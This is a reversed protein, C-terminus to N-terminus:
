QRGGNEEWSLGCPAQRSLLPPHGEHPYRPHPNRSDGRPAAIGRPSCSGRWRWDIAFTTTLIPCDRTRGKCSPTTVDKWKHVSVQQLSKAFNRAVTGLNWMTGSGTGASPERHPTGREVVKLHFPVRVGGPVGHLLISM